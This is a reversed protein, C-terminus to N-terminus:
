VIGDVPLLNNLCAFSFGSNSQPLYLKGALVNEMNHLICWLQKIAVTRLLYRMYWLIVPRQKSHFGMEANYFYRLGGASAQQHKYLNSYSSMEPAWDTETKLHEQPASVLLKLMQRPGVPLCLM